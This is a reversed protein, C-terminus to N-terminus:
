CLSSQSHSQDPIRLMRMTDGNIRTILYATFLSSDHTCGYAPFFSLVFSDLTM